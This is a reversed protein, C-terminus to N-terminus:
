NGRKPKCLNRLILFHALSSSEIGEKPSSKVCSPLQCVPHEKLERKQAQIPYLQGIPPAKDSEIGEKPSSLTLAAMRCPM